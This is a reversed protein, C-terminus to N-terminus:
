ISTEGYFNWVQDSGTIFVDYNEVCESITNNNYVRESHPVLEQNFVLFADERRKYIEHRKNEIDILFNRVIGTIKRFCVKFIDKRFFRKLEKSKQTTLIRPFSIQEVAYGQKLLVRCLAYAQLNSGYNHAAHFTIIGVRKKM